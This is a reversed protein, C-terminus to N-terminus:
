ELATNDIFFTEIYISTAFIFYVILLVLDQSRCSSDVTRIICRFIGSCALCIMNQSLKVTMVSQYVLCLCLLPSIVKLINGYIIVYTWASYINTFKLSTEKM